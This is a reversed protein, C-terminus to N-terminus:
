PLFRMCGVAMVTSSDSDSLMESKSSSAEDVASGAGGVEGRGAGVPSGPLSPAFPGAGLALDKMRLGGAFAPRPRTAEGVNESCAPLLSWTELEDSSSSLVLVVLSDSPTSEWLSSSEEAASVDAESSEESSSTGM